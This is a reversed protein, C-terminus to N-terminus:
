AAPAPAQELGAARRSEVEALVVIGLGAALAASGWL